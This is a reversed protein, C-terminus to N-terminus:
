GGGLPSNVKLLQLVGDVGFCLHNNTIGVKSDIARLSVQVLDQVGRIAEM